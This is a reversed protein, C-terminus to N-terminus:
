EKRRFVAICYDYEKNIHKTVDNYNVVQLYYKKSGYSTYKYLLEKAEKLPDRSSLPYGPIDAFYFVFADESFLWNSAPKATTSAVICIPIPSGAPRSLFPQYHRNTSVVEPIKGSNKGGTPDLQGFWMDFDYKAETEDVLAIKYLLDMRTKINYKM